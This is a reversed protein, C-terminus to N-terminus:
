RATEDDIFDRGAWFAVADPSRLDSPVAPAKLLSSAIVYLTWAIGKRRHALDVNVTDCRIVSGDAGFVAQAVAASNSVDEVWCWLSGASMPVAISRDDCLERAPHTTSLGCPVLACRFKYGPIVEGAFCDVDPCGELMRSTGITLKLTFANRRRARSAQEASTNLSM